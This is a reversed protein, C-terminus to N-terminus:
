RAFVEGGAELAAACPWSTATGEDWCVACNWSKPTSDGMWQPVHFRAPLQQREELTEPLEEFCPTDPAELLIAGVPSRHARRHLRIVERIAEATAPSLTESAETLPGAHALIMRVATKLQGLWFAMDARSLADVNLRDFEALAQKSIALTTAPSLNIPESM